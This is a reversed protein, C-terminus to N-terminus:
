PLRRLQAREDALKARAQITALHEALYERERKGKPLTQLTLIDADLEKADVDAYFTPNQTPHHDALKANEKFSQLSQLAISAPSDGTANLAASITDAAKKAAQAIAKRNELVEQFMQDGTFREGHDARVEATLDSYVLLLLELDIKVVDRSVGEAPIWDPPATLTEGPQIVKPQRGDIWPLWADHTFAFTRAIGNSYTFTELISYTTIEQNSKNSIEYTFKKNAADISVVRVTAGKIEGTPATQASLVVLPLFVILVCIVIKGTKM